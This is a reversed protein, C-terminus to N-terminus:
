VRPRRTVYFYVPAPPKGKASCIFIVERGFLLTQKSVLDAPLTVNFFRSAKSHRAIRGSESLHPYFVIPRGSM